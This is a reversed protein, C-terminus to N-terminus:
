ACTSSTSDLDFPMWEKSINVPLLDSRATQIHRGWAMSNCLKFLLIFRKITRLLLLPLYELIDRCLVWSLCLTDLPPRKHVAIIAKLVYSQVLLYADLLLWSHGWFDLASATSSRLCRGLELFLPLFPSSHLLLSLLLFSVSLLWSWLLPYMLM